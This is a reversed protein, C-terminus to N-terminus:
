WRLVRGRLLDAFVGTWSLGLLFFYLLVFVFFPIIGHAFIKEQTFSFANYFVYLSFSLVILFVGVLFYDFDLINFDFNLTTLLTILDFGVSNLDLLYSVAHKAGYYTSTFLIFMALFGSLLLMPLMFLGFDGYKPNLLFVRYRKSLTTLFAGKFWRTRQRFYQKFNKPAITYSFVDILQIVQYNNKQIKYTLELDETINTEDFGGLDRVIKTNYVSFPGPAVHICDASGMIKKYFMNLIYEYAQLKQIFTKPSYVKMCPLVCGVGENFYPLMKLLADKDIISDADFCVFYEGTAQKLAVNMPEGKLHGQTKSVNILRVNANSSAIVEKAIEETGDSSGHNLVLIELKDAPYDLAIASRITQEIAKEENRAPIAITVVPFTTLEQIKSEKKFLMHVVLWFIIFFLSILYAGVLLTSVLPNIM